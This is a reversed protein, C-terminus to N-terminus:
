SKSKFVEEYNVERIEYFDCATKSGNRNGYEFSRDPRCRDLGVFKTMVDNKVNIISDHRSHFHGYIWCKIKKNAEIILYDYLDSNRKRELDCDSLVKKDYMAWDKLGNKSHPECFTPSSHTAVYDVEYTTDCIFEKFEETMELPMEGEWWSIGRVRYIRDISRGGGYCLVNGIETLIMQFDRMIVINPYGQFLQPCKEELNNFYEPDDHNGRVFAVYSNIEELKKNYKKFNDLYYKQHAFGFSIDGCVVVLTNPGVCETVNYFFTPFEGHIDGCFVLREIGKNRLDCLFKNSSQM